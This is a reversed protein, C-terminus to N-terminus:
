VRERCSARGIEKMTQGAKINMVGHAQHQDSRWTFDVLKQPKEPKGVRGYGVSAYREAQARPLKQVDGEKVREGNIPDPPSIVWTFDVTDTTSM